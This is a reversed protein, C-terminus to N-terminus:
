LRILNGFFAAEDEEHTVLVVTKGASQARFYEMTRLKTEEDLGKFPEDALLLDYESLLARLIAVRRKMGGSFERVPQTNFDELGLASLGAQAQEKTLQPACLKLNGWATSGECLRDEQFVMSKREPVGTISGSDPQELGALLRLLTTKGCGSAGMLVTTQGSPLEASFNQLVEKEGYAKCLQSIKIKEM